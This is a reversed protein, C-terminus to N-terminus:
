RNRGFVCTSVRASEIRVIRGLTEVTDTLSEYNSATSSDVHKINANANQRKAKLARKHCPVAWIYVLAETSLYIASFTRPAHLDSRFLSNLCTHFNAKCEIHTDTLVNFSSSHKINRIHTERISHVYASIM